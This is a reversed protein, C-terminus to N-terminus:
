LEACVYDNVQFHPGYRKVVMAVAEGSLRKDLVKGHRNM